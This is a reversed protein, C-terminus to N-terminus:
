KSVCARRKSMCRDAGARLAAQPRGPDGQGWMCGGWEIQNNEVITAGLRPTGVASVGKRVCM